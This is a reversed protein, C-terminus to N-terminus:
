RSGPPSSRARSSRPSRSPRPSPRPRRTADQCPPLNLLGSMAMSPYTAIALVTSSPPLVYCPPDM